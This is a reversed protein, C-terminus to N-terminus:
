KVEFRAVNDRSVPGLNFPKGRVEVATTSVSGVTVALPVAGSAGASEGAAMLRSLTVNGNSDTVQVWSPGTAKFVVVGTAAPAAPTSVPSLAPTTNGAVTAATAAAMAPVVVPAPATRATGVPVTTIVQGATPASVPAASASSETSASPQLVAPAASQVVVPAAMAAAAPEAKAVGDVRGVDPLFLLVGAGILLAVVILSTPRTLHDRWGPSAADGPARFPANLGVKDQVLKPVSGQPLLDLVPQPDMKLNRCVALALSRTFVADTLQDHRDEELAQLKRVPVKLAAALAATHMGASERAKRILSGATLGQAVETM